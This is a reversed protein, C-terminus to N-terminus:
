RLYGIFNCVRFGKEEEREEATGQMVSGEVQTAAASCFLGGNGGGVAACM